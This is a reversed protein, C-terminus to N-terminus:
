TKDAERSALQKLVDVLLPELNLRAQEQLWQQRDVVVGVGFNPSALPEPLDRRMFLLVKASM